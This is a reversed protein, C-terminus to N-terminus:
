PESDKKCEQLSQYSAWPTSDAGPGSTISAVGTVWLVWPFAAYATATFLVLAAIVSARRLPMM